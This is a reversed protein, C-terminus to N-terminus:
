LQLILLKVVGLTSTLLHITLFKQINSTPSFIYVAVKPFCNLTIKTFSFIHIGHGLLKVELCIGLFIKLHKSFVSLYNM